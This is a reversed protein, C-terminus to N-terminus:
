PPSELAMNRNYPSPKGGPFEPEIWNIWGQNQFYLDQHNQWESTVSRPLRNNDRGDIMWGNIAVQLDHLNAKCAAKYGSLKIKHIAPLLLAILIAMIFVVALLEIISFGDRSLKRM